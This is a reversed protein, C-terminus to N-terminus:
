SFPSLPMGIAATTLYSYAFSLRRVRCLAGTSSVDYAEEKHAIHNALVELTAVILIFSFLSLGINLLIM